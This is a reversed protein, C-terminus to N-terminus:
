VWSQGDAFTTLDLTDWYTIVVWGVEKGSCDGASFSGDLRDSGGPCIRVSIVGSRSVDEEEGAPVSACEQELSLM